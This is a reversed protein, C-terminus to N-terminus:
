QVLGALAFPLWQKSALDAVGFVLDANEGSSPAAWAIIFEHEGAELPEVVDAHGRGGRHFSPANLKCYSGAPDLPAAVPQRGNIWCATEIQSWAEVRLTQEKELKLQFRLLM